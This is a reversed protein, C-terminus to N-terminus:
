ESEKDFNLAPITLVEGKSTIFYGYGVDVRCVMAEWVGDQFLHHAYDQAKYREHHPYSKELTWKGGPHSRSWVQYAYMVQGVEADQAVM